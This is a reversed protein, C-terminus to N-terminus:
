GFLHALQASTGVIPPVEFPLIRIALLARSARPQRLARSEPTPLRVHNAGPFGGVVTWAGCTGDKKTRGLGPM